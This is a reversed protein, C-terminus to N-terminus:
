IHILSLTHLEDIFLSIEGNSDTVEKLFSKLSDRICMQKRYPDSLM